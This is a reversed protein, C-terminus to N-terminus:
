KIKINQLLSCFGILIWWGYFICFHVCHRRLCWYMNQKIFYYELLKKKLKIIHRNNSRENLFFAWSIFDHTLQLTSILLKRLFFNLIITHTILAFPRYRNISLNWKWFGVLPNVDIAFNNTSVVSMVQNGM